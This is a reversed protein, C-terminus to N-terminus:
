TSIADGCTADTLTTLDEIDSYDLVNKPTDIAVLELIFIVSLRILRLGDKPASSKWLPRMEPQSEQDTLGTNTTTGSSDQQGISQNWIQVAIDPEEWGAHNDLYSNLEEQIIEASKSAIRGYEKATM